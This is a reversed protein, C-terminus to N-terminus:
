WGSHREALPLSISPSDASTRPCLAPFNGLGMEISPCCFPLRHGSCIGPTGLPLDLEAAWESQPFRYACPGLSILSLGTVWCAHMWCLSATHLPSAILSGPFVSALFPLPFLSSQKLVEVRRPPNHLEQQAASVSSISHM